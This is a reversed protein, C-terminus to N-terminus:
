SEGIAPGGELASYVMERGAANGRRDLHGGQNEREQELPTEVPEGSRLQGRVYGRTPGGPQNNENRQLRYQLGGWATDDPYPPNKDM